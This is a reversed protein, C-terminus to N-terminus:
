RVNRMRRQSQRPRLDDLTQDHWRLLRVKRPKQAQRINNAVSARGSRDARIQRHQVPIQTQPISTRYNLFDGELRRSILLTDGITFMIYKAGLTITVQGDSDTIIKELESLATGPVVFSFAPTSDNEMQERRIALRYGDVAVITLSGDGTEFLAGTHIPRSENDSVAFNTQSIMSKLLSESIEISDYGDVTPLEPFDTTPSGLIEYESMESAITAV